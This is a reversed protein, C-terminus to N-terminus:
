HFNINSNIRISCLNSEIDFDPSSDPNIKLFSTDMCFHELINGKLNFDKSAFDADFDLYNKFYDFLSEYASVKSFTVFYNELNEYFYAFLYDSKFSEFYTIVQYFTVIFSGLPLMGFPQATPEKEEQFCYKDAFSCCDLQRINSSEKIFKSDM